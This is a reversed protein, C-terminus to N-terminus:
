KEHIRSICRSFLIGFTYWGSRSKNTYKKRLGIKVLDRLGKGCLPKLRKSFLFIPNFFGIKQDSHSSKFWRGRPGSGLARGFQAVGRLFYIRNYNARAIGNKCCLASRASRSASARQIIGSASDFIRLTM